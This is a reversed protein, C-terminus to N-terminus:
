RLSPTPTDVRVARGQSKLHPNALSSEQRLTLLPPVLAVVSEVGRHQLELLLLAGGRPPGNAVPEDAAEHEM